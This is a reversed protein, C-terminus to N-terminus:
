KIDRILNMSQKVLARLQKREEIAERTHLGHEFANKNGRPADSGRSGGHMRCRLKGSVAPAQCPDGSRTKAGCRPSALMPGTNGPHDRSM